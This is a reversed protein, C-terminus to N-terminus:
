KPRQEGWTSLFGCTRSICSYTWFEVLVVKGRLGDATLPPSNLWGTAGGLSPMMKAQGIGAHVVEMLSM